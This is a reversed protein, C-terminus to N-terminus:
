NTCAWTWTSYLWISSMAATSFLAPNACAETEEIKLNLGKLLFSEEVLSYEWTWYLQLSCFVGQTQSQLCLNFM